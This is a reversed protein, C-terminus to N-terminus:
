QMARFLFQAAAGRFSHALLRKTEQRKKEWYKSEIWITVTVREM